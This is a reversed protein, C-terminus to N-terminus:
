RRAAQLHDIFARVKTPLYSRSPYLIWIATDFETATVDWGPLLDVLDGSALDGDIMWDALLAPGLARRVCEGVALPNSLSVGGSVDVRQPTEVSGGKRFLWRGAFGPVSLLVCDHTALDDPARIPDVRRLYDPSAVVRFRTNMLRRGTYGVDLAPGHRLAVDIRETILDLPRDSLILDVALEPFRARFSPLWGALHTVGFAVSATVRLLGAPGRTLARIEERARLVDESLSEARGFFLQGAETLSLRRTSRQFLRCGLSGELGAIARSVTSPDLDRQRAAAAFSGLRVVDVFLDIQDTEM